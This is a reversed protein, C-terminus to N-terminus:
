LKLDTCFGTSKEFKAFMEVRKNNVQLSYLLKM